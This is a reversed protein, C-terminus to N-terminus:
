KIMNLIQQKGVAGASRNIIKGNKVAFLAPISMVDFEAALEPQEDANIKCVKIEPHEEAIEEIVPALMRCPGCWDAYFDLLVIKDCETVEKKFNESSVTYVPM